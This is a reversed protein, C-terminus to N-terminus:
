KVRRVEIGSGQLLTELQNFRWDAGPGVEVNLVPKWYGGTGAIGWTDIRKWIKNVMEDIATRANENILIAVVPKRSGREPVLM